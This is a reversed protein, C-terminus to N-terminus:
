DAKENLKDLISKAYIETDNENNGSVTITQFRNEADLIYVCFLENVKKWESANIYFKVGSIEGQEKLPSLRYIQRVNEVREKHRDPFDTNRWEMKGTKDVEVEAQWALECEHEGDPINPCLIGDKAKGNLVQIKM